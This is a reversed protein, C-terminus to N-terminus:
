PPVMDAESNASRTVLLTALSVWGNHNPRDFLRLQYQKYLWNYKSLQCQFLSCGAWPSLLVRSPTSSCRRSSWQECNTCNQRGFGLIHGGKWLWGKDTDVWLHSWKIPTSRINCTPLRYAYSCPPLVVYQSLSFQWMPIMQRALLIWIFHAQM